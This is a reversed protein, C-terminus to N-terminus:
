LIAMRIIIVPKNNEIINTIMTRCVSSRWKDCSNVTLASLNPLGSVSVVHEFM